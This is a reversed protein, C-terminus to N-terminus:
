LIVTKWECEEEEGGYMCEYSRLANMRPLKQGRGDECVTVCRCGGGFRDDEADEVTQNARSVRTGPQMMRLCHSEAGGCVGKDRAATHRLFRNM